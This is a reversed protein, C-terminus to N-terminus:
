GRVAKQYRAPTTGYRKVFCRNLHSQDSLGCDAAVQAPALGATLLQKARHLRLAMLMQQPTAHHQAQFQRLFHFPSLGAVAALQELTIRQALHAQMYDIVADFRQTATHPPHSGALPALLAVLQTLLCDFALADDAQWLAALLQSLQKARAPQQQVADAFWWGRQGAIDDLVQPEIYIMRYQWGGDSEARGTHLVDPNMTVIGGPAALHESGRYRFREVGSAVAGFGYAAHTHPEFAHRVIHARYLEIGPRAPPHFFEASDSAFEFQQPVGQM